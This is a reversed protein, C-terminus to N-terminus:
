VDMKGIEIKRREWTGWVAENRPMGDIFELVRATDAKQLTFAFTRGTYIGDVSNEIRELRKPTIPLNGQMANLVDEPGFVKLGVVHMKIKRRYQTVPKITGHAEIWGRCFGAWDTVDALCPMVVRSSKVCWQLAERGAPRISYVSTGFLPQVADCFGKNISRVALRDGQNSGLAMIIAQQYGDVGLVVEM